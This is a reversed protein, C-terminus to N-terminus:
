LGSADNPEGAKGTGALGPQQLRQEIRPDLVTGQVGGLGDICVNTGVGRLRTDALKGTLQDRLALAGDHEQVIARPLRMVGDGRDAVRGATGDAQDRDIQVDAVLLRLVRIDKSKLVCGRRDDFGHEFAV